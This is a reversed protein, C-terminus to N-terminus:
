AAFATLITACPTRMHLCINQVHPFLIDVGCNRRLIETQVFDADARQNGIRQVVGNFGASINGVFGCASDKEIGAAHVVIEAVKDFVGGGIRVIM